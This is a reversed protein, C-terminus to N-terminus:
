ISTKFKLNRDILNSVLTVDFFASPNSAVTQYLFPNLFGLTSKNNNLRIENLLSIIGAFTPASASTGGVSTFGGGVVVSFGIGLAAM